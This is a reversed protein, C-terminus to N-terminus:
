VAKERLAGYNHALWYGFERPEVVMFKGNSTKACGKLAKLKTEKVGSGYILLVTRDHTRDHYSDYEVKFLKDEVTGGTTQTRCEIRTLLYEGNVREVITFDSYNKEGEIVIYFMGKVVVVDPYTDKNIVWERYSPVIPLGVRQIMKETREEASRGNTVALHGQFETFYREM